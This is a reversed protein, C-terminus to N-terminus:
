RLSYREISVGNDPSSALQYLSGDPGLRVDALLNDGYVARPLSFRAKVGGSGLELVSYEWKFGAQTQKTVDLAVVLDGGALEPTFFNFNVDTGSVVRWSRVLRTGRFLAYRAERPAGDTKATYLESVLRLGGAVPQYPWHTGVRQSATSLPKGAPTAVPMWGFGSGPGFIGVLCYLTGNPAFRLQSNEGNLFTDKGGYLDHKWLVAGDSALRYLVRHHSLGVGEGGAVFVTGDPRLAVDGDTTGEPLPITRSGGAPERVLLRENLGDDLLISGDRAVLFTEPGFADGERQWGVEDAAWHAVAAEPARTKGFLHTGLRVRVPHELIWASRHPTTVSRGSKPDRIVAYYTVTHGHLLREPVFASLRRLTLRAFSSMLDNQVYLFGTPSKVNPSDVSYVVQVRDGPVVLNGIGRPEQHVVLPAKAPSAPAVPLILALALLAKM